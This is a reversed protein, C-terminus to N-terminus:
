HARNKGGGGRGRATGGQQLAGNQKNSGGSSAARYLEWNSAAGAAIAKASGAKKGGCAARYSETYCERLRSMVGELSQPLPGEDDWRRPAQEGAVALAGGAANEGGVWLAAPVVPRCDRPLSRYAPDAFRSGWRARSERREELARLVTDFAKSIEAPELGVGGRAGPAVDGGREEGVSRSSPSPKLKSLRERLALLCQVTAATRGELERWTALVLAMPGRWWPHLNAHRRGQVWFQNLWESELETLLAQEARVQALDLVPGPGGAGGAVGDPAGGSLVEECRRQVHAFTNGDTAAVRHTSSYRLTSSGSVVAHEHFHNFDDLLFYADGSQLPILLPPTLVEEREVEAESSVASSVAAAAASKSGGGERRGKATNATSKGGGSGGEAEESVRLAIGWDPEAPVPDTCHYVGITSFDELCSDAHWSVSCKGMAFMPEPKLDRKASSCEMRNILTLNFSCFTRRDGEGKGEEELLAVAKVRMWESLHGVKRLTDRVNEPDNDKLGVGGEGGGGGGGGGGSQFLDALCPDNLADALSDGPGTRFDGAGDWPHAFLRLGLYKYTIGPDGLLTRTVFTRSLRKGGAQVTDYLFLGAEHLADFSRRFKSHVAKPLSDRPVRKMGRYSRDLAAQFLPDGPSLWPRRQLRLDAELQPHTFRSPRDKTRKPPAMPNARSQQSPPPPSHKTTSSADQRNRKRTKEKKNAKTKNSSGSPESPHSPRAPTAAAPTAAAPTAPTAVATAPAAAAAGPWPSPTVKRRNRRDANKAQGDRNRGGPKGMPKWLESLQETDWRSCLARRAPDEHANITHHPGV